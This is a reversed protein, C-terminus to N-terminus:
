GGFPIKIKSMDFLYGFANQLQSQILDCLVYIGHTDILRSRANHQSRIVYVPAGPILM